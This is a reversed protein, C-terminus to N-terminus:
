RMAMSMSTTSAAATSVAPLSCGRMTPRASRVSPNETAFSSLPAPIVANSVAMRMIGTRIPYAPASEWEPFDEGLSLRRLLHFVGYILARGSGSLEMGDGCRKLSVHEDTGLYEKLRICAYADSRSGCHEPAGGMSSLGRLLERLAAKGQRTAPMGCVHKTYDPLSPRVKWDLWLLSYDM